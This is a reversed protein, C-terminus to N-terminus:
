SIGRGPGGGRKLADLTALRSVTFAHSHQSRTMLAISHSYSTTYM